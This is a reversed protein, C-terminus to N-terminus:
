NSPKFHALFLGKNSLYVEKVKLLHNVDKILQPHLDYQLFKEPHIWKWETHEESLQVEGDIYECIFNIGVMEDDRNDARYFHYFSIPAILHFNFNVGLEEKIERKIEDEVTSFHQNFRGSVCEWKGPDQDRHKSRKAILIKEGNFIFANAAVIFRGKGLRKLENRDTM